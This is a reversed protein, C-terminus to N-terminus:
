IHHVMKLKEIEEDNIASFINGNKRERAPQLDNKNIYIYIPYFICGVIIFANKYKNTFTQTTYIILFYFIFLFQMVYLFYLM